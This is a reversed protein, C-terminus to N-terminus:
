RVQFDLVADATGAPPPRLGYYLGVGLAVSTVAAVSTWLWWKRVISDKRSPPAEKMPGITPGVVAPLELPKEPSGAQALGEPARTEAYYELTGGRSLPLRATLNEGVHALPAERWEREGQWRWYVAGYSIGGTRSPEFLLVLADSSHKPVLAKLRPARELEDKVERYLATIKPSTYPPLEYGPSSSVLQKLERRAAQM